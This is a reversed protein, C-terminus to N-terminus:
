EILGRGTKVVKGENRLDWVIKDLVGNVFLSSKPTSFEKALDIYENISVKIPISSCGVIESIAMKLIIVDVIALRDIDWNTSKEEIYKETILKNAITDKFLNRVFERDEEEDRMVPYVELMRDPSSAAAKINKIVMSNVFAMSETYYLNKEELLNVLNEYGSVHNQYLRVVLAVDSEWQHTGNIDMERYEPSKKLNLFIKHIMDHDAQWSIKRKKLLDQLPKNASLSKLFLNEGLGASVKRGSSGPLKPKPKDAIYKEEEHVLEGLLSLLTLYLDYTKEIGRFLEKEAAQMDHRDDHYYAYLAQM